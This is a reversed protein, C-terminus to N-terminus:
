HLIQSGRVPLWRYHAANPMRGRKANIKSTDFRVRCPATLRNKVGEGRAGAVAGKAAQGERQPYAGDGAVSRRGARWLRRLM